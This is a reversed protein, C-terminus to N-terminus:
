TAIRFPTGAERITRTTQEATAVLSGSRDWMAIDGVVYDGDGAVLATELLIWSSSVEGVVRVTASVTVAHLVDAMTRVVLYPVHDSLVALMPEPGLGGGLSAWLLVTGNGPAGPEPEPSALRVDLLQTLTTSAPSRYTREPCSEPPPVVPFRRWGLSRRAPPGLTVMSTLVQRDNVRGVVVAQTMRGGVRTPEIALDLHEGHAIPALFSTTQARLRQGSWSQAADAVAGMAWGGFLVLAGSGACLREDVDIRYSTSGTGARESLRADPWVAM